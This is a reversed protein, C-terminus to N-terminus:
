RHLDLSPARMPSRWPRPKMAIVLRLPHHPQHEGCRARWPSPSFFLCVRREVEVRRGDSGAAVFNMLARRVSLEEALEALFGLGVHEALRRVSPVALHRLHADTDAPSQQESRSPSRRRCAYDPRAFSKAPKMPSQTPLPSRAIATMSSTSLPKPWPEPDNSRSLSARRRSRAACSVAGDGHRLVHQGAVARLVGCAACSGAALRVGALPARLHRVGPFIGGCGRPHVARGSVRPSILPELARGTFSWIFAEELRQGPSRGIPRTSPPGSICHQSNCRSSANRGCIAMNLCSIM